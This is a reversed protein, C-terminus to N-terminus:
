VKGMLTDIRQDVAGMPGAQWRKRDARRLMRDKRQRRLRILYPREEAYHLIIQTFGRPPRAPTRRACHHLAMDQLGQQRPRNTHRYRLHNVGLEHRGV